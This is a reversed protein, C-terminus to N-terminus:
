STIQSGQEAPTVRCRHDSAPPARALRSRFYSPVFSHRSRARRSPNHHPAQPAARLRPNKTTSPVVCPPLLSPARARSIRNNSKHKPAQPARATVPPATARLAPPPLLGVHWLALMQDLRSFIRALCAMILAHVAAPLWFCTEQAQIATHLQALQAALGPSKIEM